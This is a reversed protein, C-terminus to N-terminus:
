RHGHHVRVVCSRHQRRWRPRCLRLPHAAPAAPGASLPVWRSRVGATLTAREEGYRLPDLAHPGKVTAVALPSACLHAFVPVQPATAAARARRSRLHKRVDQLLVSARKLDDGGLSEGDGVSFVSELVRECRALLRDAPVVAM